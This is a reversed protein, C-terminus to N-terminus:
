NKNLVQKLILMKFGVYNVLVYPRIEITTTKRTNMYFKLNFLLYILLYMLLKKLAKKLFTTNFYIYTAIYKIKSYISTM